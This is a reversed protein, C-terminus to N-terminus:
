DDINTRLGSNSEQAFASGRGLSANAQPPIPPSSTASNRAMEHRKLGTEHRKPGTEHRKLTMEHCRDPTFIGLHRLRGIEHRKPTM